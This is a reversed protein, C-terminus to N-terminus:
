RRDRLGNESSHDSEALDHGLHEEEQIPRWSVELEAGIQGEYRRLRDIAAASLRHRAVFAQSTTGSRASRSDDARGVAGVFDISFTSPNSGIEAHRVPTPSRDRHEALNVVVVRGVDTVFGSGRGLRQSPPARSAPTGAEAPRITRPTTPSGLSAERRPRALFLRSGIRSRSGGKLAISGVDRVPRSRRQDLRIEICTTMGATAAAARVEERRGQARRRDPRRLDPAAHQRQGREAPRLPHGQDPRHHRGQGPRHVRGEPRRLRLQGQGRRGQLRGRRRGPRRKRRDPPAPGCLRPRHHQYGVEEDHTLGKTKVSKSARLLAVGGGPLIGEELAARTAHLADEVRAKKEKMESETAAGVNIKAVGGALKALREELKERDYDSKTDAIERRISEIRGKIADHSGAGEIITTNDKDIIM